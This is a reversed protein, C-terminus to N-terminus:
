QSGRRFRVFAAVAAVRDDASFASHGLFDRHRCVFPPVFASSVILM